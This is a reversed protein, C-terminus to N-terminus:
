EQQKNLDSKKEDSNENGIEQQKKKMGTRM